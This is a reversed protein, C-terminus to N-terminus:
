KINSPEVSITREYEEKRKRFELILLKEEENVDFSPADSVMKGLAMELLMKLKFVDGEHTGVTIINDIWSSIIDIDLKSIILVKMANRNADIARQVEPLIVKPRGNPNGSQGKKFNYPSINSNKKTM